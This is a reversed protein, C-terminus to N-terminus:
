EVTGTSGYALQWLGYGANGRSETGYKFVAKNFVDDSEPNTQQVFVPAKREQFIIPMIPRTTVLLYWEVDNTLWPVVVVKVTNRYPNPQGNDFKEAEAIVKATAELAPPVMLTDPMINLPRGEDDQLKQMALRGVGFSAMAEALTGAKLKKTGRNSVVADGVPHDTDFFYQGDFGQKVFGQSFLPFVLEDPWQKASFGAEQAMPGYIGLQDDEIDDRHVEVTAEFSKNVISFNFAELRKFVKEGIWERMKPFRSLWSYDNSKGTSPVKMAVMQWQAPAAEFAKNFTTLLNIFINKIVGANVLM